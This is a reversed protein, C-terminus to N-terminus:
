VPRLTRLRVSPGLFIVTRGVLIRSWVTRGDSIWFKTPRVSSCIQTRNRFRVPHYLTIRSVHMQLSTCHFYSKTWKSHDKLEPLLLPCYLVRKYVVCIFYSSWTTSDTSCKTAFAVVLLYGILNCNTKQPCWKKKEDSGIRELPFLMCKSSLKLLVQWEIQM